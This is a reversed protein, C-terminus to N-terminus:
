NLTIFVLRDCWNGLTRAFGDLSLIPKYLVSIWVGDM